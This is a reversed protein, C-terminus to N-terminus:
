GTSIGGVIIKKAVGEIETTNNIIVKVAPKEIIVDENEFKTETKGVTIRGSSQLELKEIELGDIILSSFSGNGQIKKNVFNVGDIQSNQFNGDIVISDNLVFKGSFDTIVLRTARFSTDSIAGEFGQSELTINVRKASVSLGIKKDLSLYFSVNRNEEGWKFPVKEGLKTFFSGVSPQQGLIFLLLGFTILVTASIKWNLLGRM